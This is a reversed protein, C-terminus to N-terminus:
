GTRQEGSTSHQQGVFSRAEDTLSQWDANRDAPVSVWERMARGGGTELRSGVGAGILEDVRPAPLKVVLEGRIVMAFIRGGVTLGPSSGFGTGQDVAPDTLHHAALLEWHRAAERREDASAM